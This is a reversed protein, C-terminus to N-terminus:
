LLRKKVGGMILTMGQVAVNKENNTWVSKIKAKTSSNGTTLMKRYANLDVESIVKQAIRSANVEKRLAESRLM